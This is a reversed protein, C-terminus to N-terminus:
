KIHKNAAAAIDNALKESEANKKGADQSNAATEKTVDAVAAADAGIAVALKNAAASQAELVLVSVSEKTALPNFKQESVIKASGPATISEVGKIREREAAAGLTKGEELGLKKGIEVGETKGVTHGEDLVAQFVAPHQAKLEKIDM